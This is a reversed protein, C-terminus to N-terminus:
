DTCFKKIRKMLTRAKNAVEVDYQYNLYRANMSMSLLWDYDPSIKSCHKSVLDALLNHKSLKRDGKYRFYDDISEIKIKKGSMAPVEFPFIKYSVFQLSSYFATTITWDAFEMKIELYDCVAENHLAHILKENSKTM